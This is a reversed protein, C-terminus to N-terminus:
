ICEKTNNQWGGLLKGIENVMESVMESVHKYQSLHLWNRRHALRLYLRVKSLHGDAIELLHLRAKDRHSNAELIAEQFDLAADLLRRTVTHRHRKPFANTRPILWDLLDFTKTFLPMEQNKM